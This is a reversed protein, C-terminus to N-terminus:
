RGRAGACLAEARARLATRSVKMGGDADPPWPHFAAPIKFRALSEALAERWAEPTWAEAEVFAVPRQGFEADAVPVVVARRVGEIRGLAAEVEEPQVNEGGSIFLHDKRGVVRLMREGGVEAWAGLDGTPFWGDRDPREVRDGDLYGAFLTAGRVLIEGDDALRLERGPLLVGSTALADLTAGPPTATVTSAMESMGYSTHIPLGLAHAEAVLGPPIASGGLLLARTKALAEPRGDRLVRLLQTAVLSGHTVGRAAVTEELPEGEGPLVVTAGALVCRVLVALGGVHYLPLDLLWRGGPGLGFFEIVGRASAVHNGLTHLAAKPTGTSGSTFVLTAPDGLTWSATSPRRHETSPPRHVTSSETLDLLDLGTFADHPAAALTRCAIRGLLDPVAAPPTRTSLPAAVVGTRFAALLLVLYDLDTPRYLALRDGCALGHDRLWATAASVRRDLDAYTVTGDPGILAPAAPRAEAAARVPDPITV